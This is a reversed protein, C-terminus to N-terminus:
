GNRWKEKIKNLFEGFSNGFFLALLFWVVIITTVLWLM